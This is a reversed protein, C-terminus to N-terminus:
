QGLRVSRIIQEFAPHYREYEDEPAMTILYFLRGDSTAITYIVDIEMVGTVTSPGAVVTAYGKRGGFDIGQPDRVVRFDPNGEVQKRIFASTASELDGGEPEVVGIFIGHTVVLSQDTRGYAGGPAFVINVEDSSLADWNRPYQIAFSNDRAQFSTFESDPPEVRVGSRNGGGSTGPGLRAPEASQRM